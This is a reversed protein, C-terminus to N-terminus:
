KEEMAKLLEPRTLYDMCAMEAIPDDRDWRFDCMGKSTVSQCNGLKVGLEFPKLHEQLGKEGRTYETNPINSTGFSHGGCVPCTFGHYREVLTKNRRNYIATLIESSYVGHNIRNM